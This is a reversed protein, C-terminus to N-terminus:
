RARLVRTASLGRAHTATAALTVRYRTTGRGRARITFHYRGARDARASAITVWRRGRRLQLSLRRPGPAPTATGSLRVATRAPVSRHAFAATIRPAVEIRTPAGSAATLTPTGAFALQYTANVRPRVRFSVTGTATTTAHAITTAAPAGATRQTLAVTLGAAGAGASRLLTGAITTASGATITRARSDMQLSAAGPKSLAVQRDGNPGRLTLTSATGGAASAAAVTFTCSSGAPVACTAPTVSWGAAGAPLLAAIDMTEGSVSVTVPGSTASPTLSISAPSVTFPLTAAITAWTPTLPADAQGPATQRDGGVFLETQSPGFQGQADAAGMVVPADFPSLIDHRHGWCGMATPSTCDINNSGFGDDYMWVFDAELPSGYGGEWNSSFNGDNPNSPVPDADNQAGTLADQDLPGSLGIVPALGRDVRELNSLVLLQHPVSLTGFDGPLQMPAVGEAARAANLDALASSECAQAGANAQCAQVTAQGLTRNAPPDAAAALAAAPWMAALGCGLAILPRV